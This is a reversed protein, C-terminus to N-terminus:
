SKPFERVSRMPSFLIWLSGLCALVIMLGVTQQVGIIVSLSGGMLGGLPIVGWVITRMTANMRGQLERPVLAQRYSVQNINYVLVGISNVFSVASVVYFADSPTAFYVPFWVVSSIVAGLITAWGVGLAKAFRTATLAGLVGGASGIGFAVGVEPVTMKLNNYFYYTAIAMFASGFLNLTGTCAAIARLRRDGFVVSLGERIDHWTSKPPGSNGPLDPKSILNLSLFSTIYGFTDGLVAVPASVVKIVVGAVSPGALGSLARTAELKSNAEAIQPKEV